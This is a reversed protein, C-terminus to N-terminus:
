VPGLRALLHPYTQPSVPQVFRCGIRGGLAWRVEALTPGLEPLTITLHDGPGFDHDTRAMLGGRSVNVVVLSRVRGDAAIGRTRHFVADRADSRADIWREATLAM